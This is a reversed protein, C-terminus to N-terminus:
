HELEQVRAKVEVLKLSILMAVIVAKVFDDPMKRVVWKKVEEELGSVFIFYQMKRIHDAQSQKDDDEGLTILSLCENASYQVRAAFTEITETEKQPECGFLNNIAVELAAKRESDLKKAFEAVQPHELPALISKTKLQIYLKIRQYESKSDDHESIQKEIPLIFEDMLKGVFSQM